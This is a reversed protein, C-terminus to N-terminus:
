RKEVCERRESELDKRMNKGRTTRTDITRDNNPKHRWAFSLSLLLKGISVEAM